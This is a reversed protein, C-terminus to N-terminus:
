KHTKRHLKDVKDRLKTYEKCWGDRVKETERLKAKLKSKNM